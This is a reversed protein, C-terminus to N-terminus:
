RSPEDMEMQLWHPLDAHGHLVRWVEIHHASGLYFVLHPYRQLKWSRLGPIDLERAYRPSGSDPHSAIHRYAQELADIFGLAGDPGAQLLYHDVADEIDLEAMARLIIPRDTV